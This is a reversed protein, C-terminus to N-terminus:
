GAVGSSMFNENMYAIFQKDNALQTKLDNIMLREEDKNIKTCM